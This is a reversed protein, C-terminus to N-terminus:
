QIVGFAWLVACVVGTVVGVPIALLFMWVFLLGAALGIPVVIESLEYLLERLRKM